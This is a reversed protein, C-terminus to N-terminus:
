SANQSQTSQIIQCATLPAIQLINVNQTPLNFRWYKVVRSVRLM